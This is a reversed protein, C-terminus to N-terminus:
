RTLKVSLVGPPITYAIHFRQPSSLTLRAGASLGPLQSGSPMCGPLHIASPASFGERFASATPHSTLCADTAPLM